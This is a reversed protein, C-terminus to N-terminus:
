IVNGMSKLRYNALTGPVQHSQRHGTSAATFHRHLGQRPRRPRPSRAQLAALLRVGAGRQGGGPRGPPAAGQPAKGAAEEGVPVAAEGHTERLAGRRRVRM